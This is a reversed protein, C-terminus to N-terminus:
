GLGHAFEVFTTLCATCMLMQGRMDCCGSLDLRRRQHSHPLSRSGGKHQRRSGKPAPATPKPSLSIEHLALWHARFVLFPSRIRRCVRVDQAGAAAARGGHGCAAAATRFRCLARCLAADSTRLRGVGEPEGSLGRAAPLLGRKCVAPRGPACLVRESSEAAQQRRRAPDACTDGSMRRGTPPVQAAAAAQAGSQRPRQDVPCPRPVAAPHAQASTRRTCRRGAPHPPAAPEGRAGEWIRAGRSGAGQPATGSPRTNRAACCARIRQRFTPAGDATATWLPRPTVAVM